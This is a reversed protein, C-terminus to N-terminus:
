NIEFLTKVVLQYFTVSSATHREIRVFMDKTSCIVKLLVFGKTQLLIRLFLLNKSHCVNKKLELLDRNEKGGATKM